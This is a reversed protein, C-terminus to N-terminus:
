FHYDVSYSTCATAMDIRVWVTASDDDTPSAPCDHDSQVEGPAMACCGRIGNPSMAAIGQRCTVDNTGNKCAAFQCIRFGGDATKAAPNTFAFLRDEGEYTFYDPDGPGTMGTFPAKMGGYGTSGTTDTDTLTCPGPTCAPTALVESNNPEPGTDPCTGGLGAAGAMGEGGAGASGGIGASGGTGASGGVGGSGAMGAAGGTNAAGGSPTGAAGGAAAAGAAGGAAAGAGGGSGTAAAGGSTGGASAGGFGGRSSGDSSCGIVSAITAITLWSGARRRLPRNM